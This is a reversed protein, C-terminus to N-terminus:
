GRLGFSQAAPVPPAIEYGPRTDVALPVEASKALAFERTM